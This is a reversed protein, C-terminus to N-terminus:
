CDVTYDAKMDDFGDDFDLEMDAGHIAWIDARDFAGYMTWIQGTSLEMCFSYPQRILRFISKFMSTSRKDLKTPPWLRAM